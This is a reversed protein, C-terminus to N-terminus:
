RAGPQPPEELESRVAADRLLISASTGVAPDVPRNGPLQGPSLGFAGIVECSQAHHPSPSEEGGCLSGFAAARQAALRGVQPVNQELALPPTSPSGGRRGM